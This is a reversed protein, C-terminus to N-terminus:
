QSCSLYWGFHAIVAKAVLLWLLGMRHSTSIFVRSFVNAQGFCVAQSWGHLDGLVWILPYENYHGGAGNLWLTLLSLLPSQLLMTVLLM